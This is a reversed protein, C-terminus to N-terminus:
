KKKRDKKVVVAPPQALLEAINEPINVDPSRAKLQNVLAEGIKQGETSGGSLYTLPPLGTIPLTVGNGMLLVTFKSHAIFDGKKEAVVPYSLLLEHNVCERVGMKSGKEDPLARLTFPLAPFKKNVENFFARSAKNKLAYKNEVARKFVTTRNGTERSKGDGSSMAIDLAYVELSEFNCKEVKQDVEDRLLIRKAGDVVFQKMQHIQTGSIPRVDYMEAVQKIASTVETNSNGAKILKSAVETAVYTADIVNQQEKPLSSISEASSQNFGVIITHAVTTIYGDIHVGLDIKIMDGNELVPFLDTESELPSCHCVTENVSICVPFAVGKLPVKGTTKSKNKFIESCRKDIIEDGFRCIDVIKAGPECKGIIDLLSAQAIKAAEKYKTLVDPNSISSDVVAEKKDEEGKTPPIPPLMGEDDSSDAM